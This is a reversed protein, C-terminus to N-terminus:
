CHHWGSPSARRTECPRRKWGGEDGGGDGLLAPRACAGGRPVSIDADCFCVCAESASLLRLNSKCTFWMARRLVVIDSDFDHSSTRITALAPQRGTGRTLNSMYVISAMDVVLNPGSERILYSPRCSKRGGTFSLATSLTASLTPFLPFNSHLCDCWKTLSSTHLIATPASWLAKTCARCAAAVDVSATGGKLDGLPPVCFWAAQCSRPSTGMWLDGPQGLHELQPELDQRRCHTGCAPTMM